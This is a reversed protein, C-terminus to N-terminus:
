PTTAAVDGAELWLHLRRYPSELFAPDKSIPAAAERYLQFSLRVTGNFPPPPLAFSEEHQPQFSANLSLDVPRSELSVQKAMAEAVEDIRTTNGPLRTEQTWVVRLTYTVPAGEHNVIGITVNRVQLPCGAQADADSVRYAGDRYTAPYCSAKGTPGLIYFETFLEAPRPVVLVYVLSGAAFVVAAALAVSLGKDLPARTSWPESEYAVRLELREDEPLRERRRWAFGLCALTFISLTALVPGERIGWPTYNLALGLLPVIAISLGLSLAVRELPSIGRRGAALTPLGKIRSAKGSKAPKPASKSPADTAATSEDEDTAVERHREPYLAAIFAYGPAALVFLLGLPVRVFGPADVVVAMAALLVLGAVAVLDWPRTTAWAIRM